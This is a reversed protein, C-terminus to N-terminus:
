QKAGIIALNVGVVILIAAAYGIEPIHYTTALFGAPACSLVLGLLRLINGRMKKSGM